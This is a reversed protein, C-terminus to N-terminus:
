QVKSLYQADNCQPVTFSQHLAIKIDDISIECKEVFEKGLPAIRKLKFARFSPANEQHGKFSVCMHVYISKQGCDTPHISIQTSSRFYSQILFNASERTRVM